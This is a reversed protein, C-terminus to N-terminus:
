SEDSGNDTYITLSLPKTKCREKKWGFIKVINKKERNNTKIAPFVALRCRHEKCMGLVQWNCCSHSGGKTLLVPLGCHHRILSKEMTKFDSICCLLLLTKIGPSTHFALPVHSPYMGPALM